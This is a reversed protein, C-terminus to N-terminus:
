IRPTGGFITFHFKPTGGFFTPMMQLDEVIGSYVRQLLVSSRSCFIPAGGFFTQL